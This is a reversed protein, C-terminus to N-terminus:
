LKEGSTAQEWNSTHVTHSMTRFAIRRPIVSSRARVGEVQKSREKNRSM